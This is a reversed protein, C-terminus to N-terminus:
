VSGMWRGVCDWRWVGWCREGVEIADQVVEVGVLGDPRGGRGLLTGLEEAGAQAGGEGGVFLRGLHRAPRVAAIAAANPLLEEGPHGDDGAQAFKCFAELCAPLRSWVADFRARIALEDNVGKREPAIAM